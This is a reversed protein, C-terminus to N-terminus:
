LSQKVDAAYWHRYDYWIEDREVLRHVLFTNCFRISNLTVSQGVSRCFVTFSMDERVM